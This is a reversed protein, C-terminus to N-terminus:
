IGSRFPLTKRHPPYDVYRMVMAEIAAHCYTVDRVAARLNKELALLSRVNVEFILLDMSKFVQYLTGVAYGM